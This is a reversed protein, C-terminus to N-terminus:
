QWLRVFEGSQRFWGWRFLCETRRGVFFASQFGCFGVGKKARFRPVTLNPSPSTFERGKEWTYIFYRKKYGKHLHEFPPSPHQRGPTNVDQRRPQPPPHQRTPTTDVTGGKGRPATTTQRTWHHRRDNHRAQHM